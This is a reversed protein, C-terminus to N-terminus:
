IFINLVLKEFIHSTWVPHGKTISNVSYYFGLLLTSIGTNDRRSTDPSEAIECFYASFDLPLAITINVPPFDSATIM